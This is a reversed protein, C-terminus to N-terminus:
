HTGDAETPASLGQFSDFIFHTRDADPLSANFLCIRYPGAGRYVGCEATDGPVAATLRFRAELKGGLLQGIGRITKIM